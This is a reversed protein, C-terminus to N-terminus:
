LQEAHIDNTGSMVYGIWFRSLAERPMTKGGVPCSSWIPANRGQTSVPTSTGAKAGFKRQRQHFVFKFLVAQKVVRM